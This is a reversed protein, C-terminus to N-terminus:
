NNKKGLYSLNLQILYDIFNTYNRNNLIQTIVKFTYQFSKEACNNKIKELIMKIFYCFIEIKFDLILLYSKM